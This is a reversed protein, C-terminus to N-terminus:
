DLIDIIEGGGLLKDNDYFVAFQGKAVGYAPENLEILGINNDIKINGEIGSTRYRVKINANFDKKDIFLNLNSIIISKKALDDKKGVILTNNKADIDVVYHPDHAGKVFFGRRKGITYHMFGKHHGVENGEIDKVIGQNDTNTHEKLIDIYSDEVFCIESSESQTALEKLVEIKRAYEKVDSKLWEGLPFIARNIVEKKVEALFYSQDKSDDIGKYIFGDKVRVYHGTAIHEIGLSNAFEIMKGFKIKRNCIVCPNPTLGEKYSNVFYSYVEDRFTDQIDHIHLKVGLYDAIKQAKKINASNLHELNHMVMYVGEVEFGQEQLLLATVTSDVGGSLGVLVKKM